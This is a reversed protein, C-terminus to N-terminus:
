SPPCTASRLRVRNLAQRCRFLTFLHGVDDGARRAAGFVLRAPLEAPLASGRKRLGARAASGGVRWGHLEAALAPGREASACGRRGRGSRGGSGGSLAAEHRDEECIEDAERGQRLAAIRFLHALEERAVEVGAAPENLQVAAGDLLEDAVRDHRDPPRRGRRLVVGLARNTRGEVEDCGDRGEPVLDARGLKRGARADEGALSRDRETGFPLAHDRAVEHVSRRADLRLRLRSGHEDALRCPPRALGGDDVLSRARVLQLPLLLRHRQMARQAYHRAPLARELRGAELRREDSPIALQAEHLLEEVGGGVLLRRVEDRGHADGADALRPQRPLEVLVEVAEDVVHVPM